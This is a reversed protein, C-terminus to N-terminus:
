NLIKMNLTGFIVPDQPRDFLSRSTFTVNRQLYRYIDLINRDGQKLANCVYYTFISHRKDVNDKQSQYIGATQGQDSSFLVVMNGRNSVVNQADRFLLKQVLRGDRDESDMKKDFDPTNFNADFFVITKRTNLSAANNMIGQLSPVLDSFDTSDKESSVADGVYYIYLDTTDRRLISSMTNNKLGWFTRASDMESPNFVIIHDKPVGLTLNMYQKMLEIDRDYIESKTSSDPKSFTNNMLIAVANGNRVSDVPINKEVDIDGFKTHPIVVVNPTIVNSSPKWVLEADSALLYSPTIGYLVKYWKEGEKNVLQLQTNYGVDTIINADNEQASGYLSAKPRVVLAFRRTFHKVPIKYDFNKNTYSVQVDISGPHEDKVTGIDINRALDLNIVGDKFTVPVNNLLVNKRYLIKIHATKVETNKKLVTDVRTVTGTKKSFRTEGTPTAKGVPKMNLVTSLALLAASGDMITRNRKSTHLGSFHTTYVLFGTGALGLAMFGYRPRYRQIYRKVVLREPYKVKNIDVLRLNLVPHDPTINTDALIVEKSSLIDGNSTDVARQPEVIWRSSTCGYLIVFALVLLVIQKLRLLM